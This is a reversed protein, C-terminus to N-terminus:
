HHHCCTKRTSHSFLDSFHLSSPFVLVLFIFFFFWSFWKVVQPQKNNAIIFRSNFLVHKSETYRHPSICVCNVIGVCRVLAYFMKNKWEKWCLEYIWTIPLSEGFWLIFLRCCKHGPSGHSIENILDIINRNRCQIFFIIKKGVTGYYILFTRVTECTWLKMVRENRITGRWYCKKAINQSGSSILGLAQSLNRKYTYIFRQIRCEFCLIM